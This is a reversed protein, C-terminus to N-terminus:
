SGADGPANKPCARFVVYDDGVGAKIPLRLEWEGAMFLNVGRLEYRASGAEHEQTIASTGHGHAPMFAEADLEADVIPSGSTDHLEFTWDYRGVYELAPDISVFRAVVLGGEGTREFPEQLLDCGEDRTGADTDAADAQAADAAGADPTPTGDDSADTAQVQDSADVEERASADNEDLHGETQMDETKETQGCAAVLLVLLTLLFSPYIRYAM